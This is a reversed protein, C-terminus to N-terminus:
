EVWELIITKLQSNGSEDPTPTQPYGGSIKEEGERKGLSLPICPTLTRSTFGIM